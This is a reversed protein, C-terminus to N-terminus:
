HSHLHHADPVHPHVHQMPEHRHLHSHMEARMDAHTHMHHGDDHSHAPSEFLHLVVGGIVLMWTGDRNGLACAGLAGMFPAFSFVSGTRGAGFERQAMLNSLRFVKDAVPFRWRSDGDPIAM